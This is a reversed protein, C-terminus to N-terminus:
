GYTKQKPTHHLATIISILTTIAIISDNVIGVIIFGIIATSLLPHSKIISIIIVISLSILGLLGFNILVSLGTNHVKDVITDYGMVGNTKGFLDIQPYNLAFTDAGYGLLSKKQIMPITRNWIFGRKTFSSENKFLDLKDVMLDSNNIAAYNVTFLDYDSQYDFYLRQATTKDENYSIVQVKYTEIFLAIRLKTTSEPIDYYIYNKAIKSEVENDSSDFVLIQKGDPQLKVVTGDKMTIVMANSQMKISDFRSEEPTEAKFIQMVETLQTQVFPHQYAGLVALLMMVPVVIKLLVHVKSKFTVFLLTLPLIIAITILGGTSKSGVLALLNLVAIVVFLVRMSWKQTYTMCYAILPIIVSVLSGIYNQNYLTSYVTRESFPFRLSQGMAKYNSGLILQKGFETQYLDFGFMQFVGIVAIVGSSLVMSKILTYAHDKTSAFTYVAYSTMCYSLWSLTGEYRDLYGVLAVDKNESFIFSLIISGAFALLTGTFLNLKYGIQHKRRFYLAGIFFIVAGIQLWVAKFYAFFDVANVIGYYPQMAKPVEVIKGFVFLPLIFIWVAIIKIWIDRTAEMKKNTKITTNKKKSM